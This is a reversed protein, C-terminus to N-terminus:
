EELDSADLDEDSDSNVFLNAARQPPSGRPQWMGQRSPPLSMRRVPGLTRVSKMVSRCRLTEKMAEQHKRRCCLSYWPWHQLCRAWEEVNKELLMGWEETHGLTQTNGWNYWHEISQHLAHKYAMWAVESWIDGCHCYQLQQLENYYTTQWDVTSPCSM